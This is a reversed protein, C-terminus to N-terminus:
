SSGATEVAGAGAQVEHNAVLYRAGGAHDICDTAVIFNDICYSKGHNDDIGIALANQEEHPAIVNHQIVMMTNTCTDAIFIGATEAFIWNDIYLCAYAYKEDGGQHYVGYAFGKGGESIFRNRRLILHHCDETNIGTPNVDGDNNFYCDEILSSNCVGLDLISVEEKVRFELNALHCGLMTPNGTVISGTPPAIRAMEHGFGGVGRISCYYPLGELNEPYAGPRVLISNYHKPTKGWDVTANNLTIAQAITLVPSDWTLGDYADNGHKSDVYYVVSRRPDTAPYVNRYRMLPTLAELAESEVGGQYPNKGLLSYSM